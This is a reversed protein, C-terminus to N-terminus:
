QDDEDLILEIRKLKSLAYKPRNFGSFCNRLRDEIRRQEKEEDWQEPTEYLRFNALYQGSNEYWGEIYAEQEFGNSSITFYKRGVKTVTAETLVQERNRAANGINLKYVTQGIEPKKNIM